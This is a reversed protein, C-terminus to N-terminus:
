DRCLDNQGTSRELGQPEGPPVGRKRTEIRARITEFLAQTRMSIRASDSPSYDTDIRLYPLDLEKEALRKVSFSEVDYTLCAQWIVEVICEPRYEAALRRLLDFRRVNPTMVSCPLHFYKEALACMLDEAGADVDDMIPKLGTCNEQCVVLGGNEEILDVVREAGHPMPVGTLLVRIRESAPPDLKRGPLVQLAKEYQELDAPMCAIISKMNLLERGTLPPMDSKMLGALKRRLQRERNMLAIAGKLKDRTISTQFRKELVRKLERLELVWHELAHPDAPKQTLELVHMSRSEALLEYMKKKGDCTTEAIVIDAMELFPNEKLVSYGFTSKILPCLNSPLFEEAATITDENGGCLCVPIGGAAMILERPTYECTIGVIHGGQKMRAEAYGLCHTVMDDFWALPGDAAGPAPRGKGKGPSTSPRCPGRAQKHVSKKKSQESM